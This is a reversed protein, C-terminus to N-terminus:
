LATKELVKKSTSALVQRYLDEYKRAIFRATFTEKVYAIGERSLNQYLDADLVLRELAQAIESEATVDVLIGKKGYDLVWPVAGADKGGIVPLGCGMGEALTNGFSEELAPHLVVDYARLQTMLTVHDMWGKFHVGEACEHAIAWNEAAQGEGYDHGVLHLEVREGYKQRLMRFGKLATQVNKRKSWENNISIIRFTGTPHEKGSEALYADNVPNPVVPLNPRFRALKEQLYVSNVNFFSGKRRVRYDLFFRVVRYLDKQLKLIEWADDRFTLLHPFGSQIAGLAYEYTWQANVIDPKDEKIFDKIQVAEQSFLDM